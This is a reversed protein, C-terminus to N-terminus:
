TKNCKELASKIDKLFFARDEVSLKDALSSLLPIYAKDPYLVAAEIVWGGFFESSLERIVKEKVNEDKRKALGILAEGRIEPEPDDVRAKLANRLDVTDIDCQTGLGFTAWNRVELDTDRSLFILGEVASNDDHCNLGFAVGYRVRPNPHRLHKKLPQIAALSNRHGLSFAASAIVDDVSDTLLEILLSVSEKQFTRKEWGLQGLIDAGIERKVPDLDNALEQAAQFEIVTGRGHLIAILNWYEEEDQTAHAAEIIEASSRIDNKNTTNM